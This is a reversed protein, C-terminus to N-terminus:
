HGQWLIASITGQDQFIALVDNLGTISVDNVAVMFALRRGSKADIYGALAQAKLTIGQATGAVYTGTKAHVQGQAGALTADKEFDKVFGLSGDVGLRPLADFFDPFTTQRRSE